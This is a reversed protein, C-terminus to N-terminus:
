AQRIVEPIHNWINFNTGRIFYTEMRGNGWDLHIFCPVRLKTPTGDASPPLTTKRKVYHKARFLTRMCTYPDLGCLGAHACPFHIYLAVTTTELVRLGTQIGTLMDAHLSSGRINAPSEVGLRLAGGPFMIPFILKHGFIELLIREKHGIVDERRYPDSCFLGVIGNEAELKRGDIPELVGDVILKEFYAKEAPSMQKRSMGGGGPVFGIVM